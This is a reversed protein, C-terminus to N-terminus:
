VGTGALPKSFFWLLYVFISTIGINALTLGIMALNACSWSRAARVVLVFDFVVVSTGIFVLVAMIAKILNPANESVFLM